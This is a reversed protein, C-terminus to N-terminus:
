WWFRRYGRNYFRPNGWGRYFRPYGWGGYGRRYYRGIWPRPVAVPFTTAYPVFPSAVVPGPTFVPAGYTVVGPNGFGVFGGTVIQAHSRPTALGLAAAVVAALLVPKLRM